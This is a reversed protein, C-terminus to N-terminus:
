SLEAKLSELQEELRKVELLKELQEVSLTLASTLSQGNDAPETTPEVAVPAESANESGKRLHPRPSGTGRKIHPSHDKACKRCWFQLGDANSANKNFASPHKWRTCRPCYKEVMVGDEYAHRGDSRDRPPPNLAEARQEDTGCDWHKSQHGPVADRNYLKPTNAPITGGCTECTTDKKSVVKTIM